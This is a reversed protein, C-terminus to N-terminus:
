FYLSVMIVMVEELSLRTFFTVVISPEDDVDFCAERSLLLREGGGGSSVKDIEVAVRDDVVIAVSSLLESNLQSQEEETDLWSLL